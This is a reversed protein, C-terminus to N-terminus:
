PDYPFRAPTSRLPASRSARSLSLLVASCRAAEAPRASIACASISLSASRLAFSWYPVGRQMQGDVITLLFDRPRQDLLTGVEVRPVVVAVGRQM